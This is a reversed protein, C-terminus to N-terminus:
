FSSAGSTPSTPGFFVSDSSSGSLVIQNGGTTSNGPYSSAALYASISSGSGLAYQRGLAPLTIQSTLYDCNSAVSTDTALVCASDTTVCTEGMDTSGIVYLETANSILQAGCYGFGTGAVSMEFIALSPDARLQIVGYSMTDWPNNLVGVSLWADVTFTTSGNIPTVIAASRSQGGYQYLYTKGDKVGFQVFGTGDSWQSYCQAYFTTTQGWTSITYEVNAQTLCAQNKMQGNLGALRGDIEALIDNLSTPGGTSPFFRSQIDDTSLSLSGFGSSSKYASPITAAVPPRVYPLTIGGKRLFSVSLGVALGVCVVGVVSVILIIKRRSRPTKGNKVVPGTATDGTEINTAGSTM